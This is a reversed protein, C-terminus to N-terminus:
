WNVLGGEQGKQGSEILLCWQYLKIKYLYKLTPRGFEARGTIVKGHGETYNWFVEVPKINTLHVTLQNGREEADGHSLSDIIPCLEIHLFCVPLTIATLTPSNPDSLCLPLGASVKTAMVQGAPQGSANTILIDIFNLVMMSSSYIIFVAVYINLKTSSM